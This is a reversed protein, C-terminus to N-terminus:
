PNAISCRFAFHLGQEDEKLCLRVPLEGLKRLCCRTGAPQDKTREKRMAKKLNEREPLGISVRPLETRLIQAPLLEPHESAIRKLNVVVMEAQAEEQNPAHTHEKAKPVEFNRDIYQTIATAKCENTRKCQWYTRGKKADRGYKKCSDSPRSPSVVLTDLPFGILLGVPHIIRPFEFYDPVSYDRADNKSAQLTRNQEGDGKFVCAFSAYDVNETQPTGMPYLNVLDFNLDISNKAKEEKVFKESKQKKNKQTPDSGITELPNDENEKM